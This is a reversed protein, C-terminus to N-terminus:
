DEYEKKEKSISESLLSSFTEGNKFYSEEFQARKQYFLSSVALAFEEETM